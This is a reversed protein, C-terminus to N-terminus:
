NVQTCAWYFVICANWQHLGKLPRYGEPPHRGFFEYSRVRLSNLSSEPTMKYCILHEKMHHIDQIKTNTIEKKELCTACVEALSM